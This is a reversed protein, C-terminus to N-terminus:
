KLPKCMNRFKDTDFSSNPEKAFYDIFVEVLLYWITEDRYHLRILQAARKHDKTSSM